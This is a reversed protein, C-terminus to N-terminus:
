RGDFMGLKLRFDHQKTRKVITSVAVAHATSAVEAHEKPTLTSATEIVVANLAWDTHTEIKNARLLNALRRNVRRQATVLDNRSWHVAVFRAAAGLGHDLVIAKAARADKGALPDGSGAVAVELRGCDSSAFWAGAAHSGLAKTVSPMLRTLADQIRLRAYAVSLSVHQTAVYFRAANAQVVPSETNVSRVAAYTASCSRSGTEGTSALSVYAGTAGLGLVVCTLVLTIHKPRAM